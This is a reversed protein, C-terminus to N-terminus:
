PLLELKTDPELSVLVTQNFMHASLALKSSGRRTIVVGEVGSLPGALIRIRKGPLVGPRVSVDECVEIALSVSELERIFREQDEVAIIRVIKKSDYLLHLEDHPLAFCVYGKFLPADVTRIRGWSGYRSKIKHTPMFYGINRGILYQAVIKECNPKTHMVWWFGVDEQLSRDEPYRAPVQRTM